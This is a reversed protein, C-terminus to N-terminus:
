PTRTNTKIFKAGCAEICGGGSMILTADALAYNYIIFTGDDFTFRLNTDTTRQYRRAQPFADGGIAGDAGFTLTLPQSAPQWTGSGDGADALTQSLKWTGTLETKEACASDSKSCSLLSSVSFLLMLLVRNMYPTKAM